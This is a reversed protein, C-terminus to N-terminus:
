HGGAPRRPQRQPDPVAAAATALHIAHMGAAQAGAIDTVANDGIMVAREPSAEGLALAARFMVSEPKGVVLAPLQPLACRLLALLAGTEIRPVGDAGPHSLDPNAVVLAAGAHLAAVAAELQALRLTPARTLLVVQPAQEVLQLGAGRAVEAIADTGLLMVRGGPYQRAVAQVALEGALVLRGAPVPLGNRALVVALRAASHTSNNSAVVLKGASRQLLEVAGPLPRQDAALCGDLDAVVLECAEILAWAQPSLAHLGSEVLTQPM